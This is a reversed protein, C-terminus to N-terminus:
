GKLKRIDLAYSFGKELLKLKKTINDMLKKSLKDLKKSAKEEVFVKFM